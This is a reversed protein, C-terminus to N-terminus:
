LLKAMYFCFALFLIALFVDCNFNLPFLGESHEIYSTEYLCLSFPLFDFHVGQRSVFSWSSKTWRDTLFVVLAVVIIFLINIVIVFVVTVKKVSDALRRFHMLMSCSSGKYLMWKRQTRICPGLTWLCHHYM